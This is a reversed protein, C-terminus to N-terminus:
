LLKLSDVSFNFNAFLSACKLCVTLTTKLIYLFSWIETKDGKKSVRCYLQNPLSYNIKSRMKCYKVDSPHHPM